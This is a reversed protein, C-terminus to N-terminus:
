ASTGPVPAPRILRATGQDTAAEGAPAAAKAQHILKVGTHSLRYRLDYREHARTIYRITVHVGDESSRVNIAPEASFAKVSYGRTARQWEEEALKSSQATEQKVAQEIQGIVPYPDIGWPIVLELDDWLWQGTTTFNFYYGRVAYNNLFTVRRGTPHGPETWNGTELLVTRLLSIEVVEGRVGNIEVWDGVRIGHRGMLTFWGFFSVVFDSLAVTLGAGALGLVTSLNAPSGFIVLLVIFLGLAQLTFRTVGRLTILQKHDLGVRKFARDLVQDVFFILLLALVIWLASRLLSHLAARQRARVLVIWQHYIAGLQALDLIRKDFDALNRTDLSLAHIAAVASDTAQKSEAASPTKATKLLSKAPQALSEKQSQESQVKQELTRHQESLAASLKLAERRANVLQQFKGKLAQWERWTAILSSSGLVGAPATAPATKPGEKAQHTAQHEQWLQQIESSPDGGARELDSRADDLDDQNLSLEAQLIGLQQKLVELRDGTARAIQDTLQKIQAQEDRIQAQLDAVRQQLARTEPSKSQHMLSATRLADTFALDLEQDAVNAANRALQQEAQTAALSMINTATQYVQEDAVPALATVPRGNDGSADTPAEGDTWILGAVLAAALCLLVLPFLKLPLKVM